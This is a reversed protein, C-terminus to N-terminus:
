PRTAAAAYFERLSNIEPGSVSIARAIREYVNSAGTYIDGAGDAAIFSAIEQMEAVWRYAKPMMDPVKRALAALLAPERAALEQHLENTAGAKVAALTMATAVATFGKTIGAFCMKLASAAGVPGDLVRIDLGHENLVTLQRAHPGSAYISPEAGQQPPPGIIGADIFPAGTAEVVRAIQLVTDPSVANCDVFLPKRGVAELVPAMQRAFPLAVAPPVISLILDAEALREFSVAQMGAASARAESAPSRGSLTTLVRLGHDVLRRGVAAGM